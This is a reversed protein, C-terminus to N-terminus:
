VPITETEGHKKFAVHPPDVSLDCFMTKAEQLITELQVENRIYERPLHREVHRLVIEKRKRLLIGMARKNETGTHVKRLQEGVMKRLVLDLQHLVNKQNTDRDRSRLEKTKKQKVKQAYPSIAGKQSLQQILSLLVIRSCPNSEDDRCETSSVTVTVAAEWGETPTEFCEAMRRLLSAGVHREPSRREDRTILSVVSSPSFYIIGVGRVFEFEAALHFYRARMSRYHFTDEVLVVSAGGSGGCILAQRVDNYFSRQAAKWESSRFGMANLVPYCEDFILLQFHSNDDNLKSEALLSHLFTTKGSAPLGIVLCLFIM